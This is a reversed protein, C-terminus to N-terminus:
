VSLDDAFQRRWCVSAGAPGVEGDEQGVSPYFPILDFYCASKKKGEIM